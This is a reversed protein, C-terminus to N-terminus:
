CFQYNNTKMLPQGEDGQDCSRDCSEEGGECTHCLEPQHHLADQQINKYTQEHRDQFLREIMQGIKSFTPRETPELNWCMKIITYIEAPAFDPQCMHCGDKIMKYFRTDVPIGPYPSKGMSFIEWMLIGYSWVDSQVTYVCEFISEPAMWKVPLRANGKVVYNSDNMIDRALGFDCIKATLSDTLLVNRAAVDRHICNKSALFELGQAVQFSFKLLDNMDLSWIDVEADECSPGQSAKTLAQAPKMEQYGDSCSCSIGSDTRKVSLNKYDSIGELVGALSMVSNLFTEAQSRLLNLLDGHTCYETIILVPGGHTCAGLLNVINQHQGLHSLIKLESMLAEREEYHASPKLMKVAVRQVSEQTGLGYATAEVVKGFAGAGLVKGFKLKDRPFELKENYPLQTPDIFTYSNGDTTEIIKWRIEYRPKQKYKYLLIILLLLFFGVTGALIPILLKSMWLDSPSGLAQPVNMTFTDHSEGVSNLAVCEVTTRDGPPALTLTSKVEAPGYEAHQVEVTATPALEWVGTDNERCTSRIGSCQYWLIRPAPYGLSTCTLTSSNSWSLVASPSQYMRVHFTISGNAKSSQAYFIYQGQEGPKMRKLLLTAEYRYNRQYFEQSTNHSTPTDWGKVEIEPYAEIGVKLEVDEGENVEIATGCWKPKRTLRPSLRLYPEEVVQLHATSSNLGAENMGTCTLNGTDSVNVAPITVTSKISVRNRGSDVQFEPILTKGYSHKWTINYDFNPNHTTCTIQLREGVLRVFEDRELAVSPPSRLRETISLTFKVSTKEVGSVRASCVYEASYSPHLDRILVGMRPDATYNMGPPAATGNEMRLSFHTASPDTLLCPLLVSEGEKSTRLMPRAPVFLNNPDKVYLHVTSFLDQRSWYACKYTGTFDATPQVVKFVNNLVHNRHKQHATTLNVDSDGECNLVLPTGVALTVESGKVVKSNLKIVPPRWDTWFFIWYAM